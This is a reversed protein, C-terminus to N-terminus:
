VRFTKVKLVKIVLQPSRMVGFRLDSRLQWPNWDVSEGDSEETFNVFPLLFWVKITDYHHWGVETSLHGLLYFMHGPQLRLVRCVGLSVLSDFVIV